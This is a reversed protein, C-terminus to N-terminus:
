NCASTSRGAAQQLAAQDHGNSAAWELLTLPLKHKAIWYDNFTVREWTEERYKDLPPTIYDFALEDMQAVWQAVTPEDGEELIRDCLGVPWTQFGPIGGGYKASGEDHYWGPM